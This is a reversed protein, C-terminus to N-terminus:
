RIPGRILDSGKRVGSAQFLFTGRKLPDEVFLGNYPTSGM